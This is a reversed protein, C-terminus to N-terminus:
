YLEIKDTDANYSKIVGEKIEGGKRYQIRMGQSYKPVTKDSFKSYNYGGNQFTPEGRTKMDELTAPEKSEVPEVNKSPPVALRVSKGELPKTMYEYVDNMYKKVYDEDLNNRQEEDTKFFSLEEKINDPLQNFNDDSLMSSLKVQFDVPENEESEMRNPVDEEMVDGEGRLVMETKVVGQFNPRKSQYNYDSKAVTGGDQKKLYPLLAGDDPNFIFGGKRRAYNKYTAHMIEDPMAYGGMKLKVKNFTDNWLAKDTPKGIMNKNNVTSNNIPIELMNTGRFSHNGSNPSLVKTDGYELDKVLLPRNVGNMTITRNPSSIFLYPSNKYPSDEKYGKKSVDNNTVM